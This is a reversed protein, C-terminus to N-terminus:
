NTADFKKHSSANDCLLLVQRNQRRMDADFSLAWKEFVDTRMWATDNFSYEYGLAAATYGKFARPKQHYGIFLPARKDSGDANSCLGLSMRTKDDKLGSMQEFGLAHKPPQRFFHATEDFNYVESPEYGQLIQQLRATEPAIQEIPASAAEGHFWVERLGLREKFRDLWGHTFGIRRGPSINLSDCFQHGKECLLDGTFRLGRRLREHVWETLAAEVEPLAVRVPQKYALYNPNQEIYARIEQERALYGSLTSQSLAPFEARFHQVVSAQTVGPLNQHARYFDIIRLKDSYTLHPRRPNAHAPIAASLPQPRRPARTKKLNSVQPM